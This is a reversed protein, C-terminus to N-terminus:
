GAGSAGRGAVAGLQAPNMRGRRIRGILQALLVARGAACGPVLAVDDALQEALEICGPDGLQEAEVDGLDLADGGSLVVICRALVLRGVSLAAM